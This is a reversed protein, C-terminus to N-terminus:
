RCLFSFNGTQWCLNHLMAFLNHRKGCKSPLLMQAHCCCCRFSVDQEVRATQDKLRKKERSLINYIFTSPSSFLKERKNFCVFSFHFDDSSEEVILSFFPFSADEHGKDAFSLCVFSVRGPSKGRAAKREGMRHCVVQSFCRSLFFNHFFLAVHVIPSSLVSKAIPCLMIHAVWLGVFLMSERREEIFKM